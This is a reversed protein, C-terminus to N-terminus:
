DRCCEPRQKTVREAAPEKRAYKRDTSGRYDTPCHVTGHGQRNIQQKSKRGEEHRTEAGNANQDSTKRQRLGARYTLGFWCQGNRKPCEGDGREDCENRRGCNERLRGAIGDPKGVRSEIM